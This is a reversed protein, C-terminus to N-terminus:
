QFLYIFLNIYQIYIYICIIYINTEWFRQSGFVGKLHNAPKRGASTQRLIEQTYSRCPKLFLVDYMGFVRPNRPTEPYIKFIFTWYKKSGHARILQLEQDQFAALTLGTFALGLEDVLWFRGHGIARLFSAQRNWSINEIQNPIITQLQKKVDNRKSGSFWERTRRLHHSPPITGWNTGLENIQLHGFKGICPPVM